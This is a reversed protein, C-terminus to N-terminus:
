SYPCIEAFQRLLKFNRHQFFFFFRDAIMGRSFLKVALLKKGSDRIKPVILIINQLLLLNYILLPVKAFTSKLFFNIQNIIYFINYNKM